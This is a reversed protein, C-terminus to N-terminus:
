GRAPGKRKPAVEPRGKTTAREKQETAECVRNLADPRERSGDPRIIWTLGQYLRWTRCYREPPVDAAKAIVAASSVAVILVYSIWFGLHRM